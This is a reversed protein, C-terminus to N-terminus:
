LSALPQDMGRGRCAWTLREFGQPHLPFLSAADRIAIHLPTALTSLVAAPACYTSLVHQERGM